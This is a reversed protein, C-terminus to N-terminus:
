SLKKEFFEEHIEYRELGQLLINSRGDPLM